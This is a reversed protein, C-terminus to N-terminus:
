LPFELEASRVVMNIDVCNLRFCLDEFFFFFLSSFIDVFLRLWVFNTLNKGFIFLLLQLKVNILLSGSAIFHCWLLLTVSYDVEKVRLPLLYTFCATLCVLAPPTLPAFKRLTTGVSLHASKAAIWCSSSYKKAYKIM